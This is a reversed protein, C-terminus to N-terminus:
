RGIGRHRAVDSMNEIRYGTEEKIRSCWYGSVGAREAYRDYDSVVGIAKEIIADAGKINYRGALELLDGRGIDSNKNGITMCHRNM